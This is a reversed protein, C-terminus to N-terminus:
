QRTPRCPPFAPGPVWWIARRAGSLRPAAWGSTGTHFGPPYRWLAMSRRRTSTSEHRAGKEGGNDKEAGGPREVDRMGVLRLGGCRRGLVKGVIGCRRQHLALAREAVRGIVDGLLAQGLWRPLPGDVLHPLEASRGGVLFRLRHDRIERPVPGGIKRRRARWPCRERGAGD